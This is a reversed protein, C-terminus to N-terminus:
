DWDPAWGTNVVRGNRRALKGIEAM